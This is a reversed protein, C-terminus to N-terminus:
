SDLKPVALFSSVMMGIQIQKLFLKTGLMHHNYEQDRCAVIDKAMFQFGNCSYLPRIKSFSFDKLGKQFELLGFSCICFYLFGTLKQNKCEPEMKEELIKQGFGDMCNIIYM